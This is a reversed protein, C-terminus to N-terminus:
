AVHHVAERTAQQAITIFQRARDSPILPGTRLVIKRAMELCLDCVSTPWRKTDRVNGCRDCLIPFAQRQQVPRHVHMSM